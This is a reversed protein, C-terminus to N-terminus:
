MIVIIIVVNNNNNHLTDAVYLFTCFYQPHHKLNSYFIEISTKERLSERLSPLFRNPLTHTFIQHLVECHHSSKFSIFLSQAIYEHAINRM